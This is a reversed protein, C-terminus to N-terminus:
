GANALVGDVIRDIAHLLRDWDQDTKIPVGSMVTISRARAALYNVAAAILLAIAPLDLGIPMSYRAGLWVTLENARRERVTELAVVLPTRLSPEAALVALTVPRARIESAHRRLCLKLADALSLLTPDIGATMTANSYWFDSAEAYAAYVGDLDGFYRYILVKDCGAARALLNIGVAGLGDRLLITGLAALIRAKTEEADRRAAIPFTNTVM